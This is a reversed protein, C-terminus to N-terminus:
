RMFRSYEACVLRCPASSKIVSVVSSSGGLAVSPLSSLVAAPDTPVSSRLRTAQTVWLRKGMLAVKPHSTNVQAGGTGSPRRSRNTTVRPSVTWTGTSKSLRATIWTAERIAGCLIGHATISAYTIAAGGPTSPCNTQMLRFQRMTPMLTRPTLFPLRAGFVYRSIM